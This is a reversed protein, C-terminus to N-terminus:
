GFYLFTGSHLHLYIKSELGLVVCVTSLKHCFEFRFAENTEFMLVPYWIIFVALTIWFVDEIHSLQPGNATM